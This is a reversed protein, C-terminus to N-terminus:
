YIRRLSLCSWRKIMKMTGTRHHSGWAYTGNWKVSSNSMRQRSNEFLTPAGAVIEVSPAGGYIHTSMRSVTQAWSVTNIEVFRHKELLTIRKSLDGIGYMVNGIGNVVGLEISSVLLCDPFIIYPEKVWGANLNYIQLQCLWSHYEDWGRRSLNTLDIVWSPLDYFYIGKEVAFSFFLLSGTSRLHEQCTRVYLEPVPLRYNPTIMSPRERPITLGLLAYFKDHDNSAKRGGHWLCLKLISLPFHSGKRISLIQDFNDVFIRIIEWAVYRSAGITPCCRETTHHNIQWKADALIQSLFAVSCIIIAFSLVAEQVVWLSEFYINERL